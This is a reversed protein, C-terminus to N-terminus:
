SARVQIPPTVLVYSPGKSQDGEEAPIGVLLGTLSDLPDSEAEDADVIECRCMGVIGWTGTEELVIDTDRTRSSGPALLWKQARGGTRTDTGACRWADSGSTEAAGPDFAAPDNERQAAAFAAVSLACGDPSYIGLARSGTNSLTVTVKYPKGAEFSNTYTETELRLGTSHDLAYSTHDSTYGWELDGDRWSTPGASVEGGSVPALPAEAETVSTTVEPATPRTTVDREEAAPPAAAPEEASETVSRVAALAGGTVLVAAAALVVPRTFFRRYGRSRRDAHARVRVMVLETFGDDSPEPPRAAELLVDLRDVM